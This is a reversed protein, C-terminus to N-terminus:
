VESQHPGALKPNFIPGFVETFGQFGPGFIEAYIKFIFWPFFQVRECTYYTRDSFASNLNKYAGESVQRLDHKSLDHLWTAHM